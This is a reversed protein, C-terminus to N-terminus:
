DRKPIEQPEPKTVEKIDTVEGGKVTIVTEPESGSKKTFLSEIKEFLQKALLEYFSTVFLYTIFLNGVEDKSIGVTYYKIVLWVIGFATAFGLFNLAAIKSIKFFKGGWYRGGVLIIGAFIWDINRIVNLFTDM